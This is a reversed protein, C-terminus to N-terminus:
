GRKPLEKKQKEEREIQAAIKLLEMRTEHGHQAQQMGAKLAMEEGAHDPKELAQPEEPQAPEQSPKFGLAQEIQSRVDPPADKFIQSFARALQPSLMTQPPPPPPVPAWYQETNQRASARLMDDVYQALNPVKEVAGHSSLMNWVPMSQVIERYLQMSAQQDRAPDNFSTSGELVQVNLVSKFAWWVRRSSQTGPDDETPGGFKQTMMVFCRAMKTVFEEYEYRCLSPRAGARSLVMAAQTASVDGQMVGRAAPSVGQIGDLAEQAKDQAAQWIVSPSEAPVRQLPLPNMPMKTWLIQAPAGTEVATRQTAEFANTDGILIQGGFKAMNGIATTIDVVQQNLGAAMVNDGLPLLRERPDIFGLLFFLPIGGYQNAERFLVNGDRVHVEEEDDFYINVVRVEKDSSKPEGPDTDVDAGLEDRKNPYLELARRLSMKIRVGAYDLRSTTVANPDLFLREPPVTEFCPGLRPGGWRWWMAALGCFGQLQLAGRCERGWGNKLWADAWAAAVLRAVSGPPASQQQQPASPAGMEQQGQSPPAEIRAFNVDDGQVHLIPMSMGIAAMRVENNITLQNIQGVPVQQPVDAEEVPREFQDWIEDSENGVNVNAADIYRNAADHAASRFPKIWENALRVREIVDEDSLAM